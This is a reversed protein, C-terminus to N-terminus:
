KKKPDDLAEEHAERCTAALAQHLRDHDVVTQLRAWLQDVRQYATAEPDIQELAAEGLEEAAEVMWAMDPTDNKPPTMRGRVTVPGIMVIPWFGLQTKPEHVIVLGPSDKELMFDRLNRGDSGVLMPELLYAGPDPAKTIEEGYLTAYAEHDNLVVISETDIAQLRRQRRAEELPMCIRAMREYDSAEHALEMAKICQRECEFYKTDALAASAQEMLADIKASKGGTKAPTSKSPM